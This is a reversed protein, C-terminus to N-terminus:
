FEFGINLSGSLTSLDTDDTDGDRTIDALFAPRYMGRADVYINNVRYALGAGLPITLADDDNRIDSTNAETNAVNFHKWGVGGLIYPQIEDTLINLRVAGEAGNSVLVADADVGLTNLSNATGHYALEGGFVTRTGVILRAEWNGGAGTFDDAEGLYGNVGGGAAFGMGMPTVLNPGPEDVPEVDLAFEEPTVAPEREEVVVREERIEKETRMTTERERETEPAWVDVEAPEEFEPEAVEREHEMEIDTVQGEETTPEMLEPEGAPEYEAGEMPEEEAGIDPQPEETEAEIGAAIEAERQQAEAEQAEREEAEGLVATEEEAVGPEAEPEEAFEPEGFERLEEEEVTIEAEGLEPEEGEWAPEEMEPEFAGRETERELEGEVQPQAGPPSEFEVEEERECATCFLGAAFLVALLSRFLKM